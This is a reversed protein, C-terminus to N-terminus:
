FRMFRIASDKAPAYLYFEKEIGFPIVIVNRKKLKNCDDILGRFLTKAEEKTASQESLHAFPVLILKNKALSKLKKGAKLITKHNDEPEFHCLAVLGGHINEKLYGFKGDFILIRM